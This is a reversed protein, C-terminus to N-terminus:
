GRLLSLIGGSARGETGFMKAMLQRRMDPSYHQEFEYLSPNDEARRVEGPLRALDWYPVNGQVLGDKAKREALAQRMMAQAQRRAIDMSPSRGVVSYVSDAHTIFPEGDMMRTRQATTLTDMVQELLRPDIEPDDGNTRYRLPDVTAM